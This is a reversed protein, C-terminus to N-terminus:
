ADPALHRAVTEVLVDIDFPKGLWGEAEVEQARQRASEAATVVVVPIARGHRRRLERAFDWGNMGPMKMDLLILRPRERELLALAAQGEPAALTRYGAEELISLEMERLDADDEVVLVLAGPGSM